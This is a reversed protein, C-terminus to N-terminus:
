GLYDIKLSIHFDDIPSDSHSSAIVDSLERSRGNHFLSAHDKFTRRITKLAHRAVALCRLATDIPCGAEATAGVRRRAPLTLPPRWAAPTGVSRRELMEWPAICLHSSRPGTRPSICIRLPKPDVSQRPDKNRSFKCVRIRNTSSCNLM